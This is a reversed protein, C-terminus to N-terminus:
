WSVLSFGCMTLLNEKVADLIRKKRGTDTGAKALVGKLGQKIEDKQEETPALKDFGSEFLGVEKGYFNRLM